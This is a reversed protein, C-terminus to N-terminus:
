GIKIVTSWHGTPTLIWYVHADDEIVDGVTLARVSGSFNTFEYYNEPYIAHKTVVEKKNSAVIDGAKIYDKRLYVESAARGDLERKYFVTFTM